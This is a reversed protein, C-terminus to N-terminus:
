TLEQEHPEGLAPLISSKWKNIRSQHRNPPIVLAKREVNNSNGGDAVKLESIEYNRNWSGEPKPVHTRLPLQASLAVNNSAHKDV